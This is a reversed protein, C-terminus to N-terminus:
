DQLHTNVSKKTKFPNHTIPINTQFFISKDQCTRNSKFIDSHINRISISFPLNQGRTLLFLYANRANQKALYVACQTCKAQGLLCCPNEPPPPPPPPPSTTTSFLHQKVRILTETIVTPVKWPWPYIRLNSPNTLIKQPISENNLTGKL